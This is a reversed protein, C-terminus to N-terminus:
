YKHYWENSYDDGNVRHTVSGSINITWQPTSSPDSVYDMTALIRRINGSTPNSCTYNGTISFSTSNTNNYIGSPNGWIYGSLNYNLLSKTSNVDAWGNGADYNM